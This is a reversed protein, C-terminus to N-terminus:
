IEHALFETLDGDLKVSVFFLQGCIAVNNQLTEIKKGQKSTTKYRPHKFLALSNRNIPDRISHSRVDIVNKVFDRYQKTGTDGSTHLAAVM